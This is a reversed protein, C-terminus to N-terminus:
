LQTTNRDCGDVLQASDNAKIDTMESRQLFEPRLSPRHASLLRVSYSLMRYILLSVCVNYVVEKARREESEVIKCSTGNKPM